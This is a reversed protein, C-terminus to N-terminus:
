KKAKELISKGIDISESLLTTDIDIDNKIDIIEFKPTLKITKKLSRLWFYPVLLLALVGIVILVVLIWAGITKLKVILAKM